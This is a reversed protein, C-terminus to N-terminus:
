VFMNLNIYSMHGVLRSTWGYMLASVCTQITM